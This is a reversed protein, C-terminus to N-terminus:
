EKKVRVASPPSAKRFHKAVDDASEIDDLEAAEQKQEGQAGSSFTNTDGNTQTKRDASKKPKLEFDRIAKAHQKYASDEEPQDSSTSSFMSGISSWFGM